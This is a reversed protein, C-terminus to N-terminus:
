RQATAAALVAMDEIVVRAGATALDDRKAPKNAYGIVPIGGARGSEVDSASDGVVVASRRTTDLADVAQNVLYADPKLLRPDMGDYRASVHDVDAEWGHRRLYANVAEASNNSVIGVSRGSSKAARLVDLSGPTARATEIATLEKDRLADAVVRTQQSTAVDALQRLFALPDNEAALAPPVEIGESMALNRLEDAIVQAPYGAFVSCVPGDFDLLLVRRDRLLEGLTTV